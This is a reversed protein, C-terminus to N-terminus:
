MEIMFMRLGDVSATNGPSNSAYQIKYTYTGAAPVEIWHDGQIYNSGPAWTNLTTSDRVLRFSTPSSTQVGYLLIFIPRGHATFSTTLDAADLWTSATTSTGSAANSLFYNAAALKALTVAGDQIKATTVADSALKGATIAANEVLDTTITADKINNTGLGTTNILTAVANLDAMVESADATTGNTLTNPYSLTSSTPM